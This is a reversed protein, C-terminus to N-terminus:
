LEKIRCFAEKGVFVIALLAIRNGNKAYREYYRRELMQTMADELLHEVSGDKTYKLETIIVRDKWTWVADM